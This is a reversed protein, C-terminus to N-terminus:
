RMTHIYRHLILWLLSRRVHRQKCDAALLKLQSCNTTLENGQKKLRTKLVSWYKRPAESQTIAAVIDVIAFFWEGQEESWVARVKRDNYFRISVKEM